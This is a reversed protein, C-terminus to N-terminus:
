RDRLAEVIGPEGHEGKVVATKPLAAALWPLNGPDPVGSFRHIWLQGAFPTM